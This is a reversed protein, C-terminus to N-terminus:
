LVIFIEESHSYAKNQKCFIFCKFVTKIGHVHTGHIILLEAMRFNISCELYIRYWCELHVNIDWLLFVFLCIKILLTSIHCIVQASIWRGIVSKLSDCTVFNSNRSLQETLRSDKGTIVHSTNSDASTIQHFYTYYQRYRLNIAPSSIKINWKDRLLSYVLPVIFIDSTCPCVFDKHYEECFM